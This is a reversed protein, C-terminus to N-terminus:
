LCLGKLYRSSFRRIAGCRDVRISGRTFIARKKPKVHVDVSGSRSASVIAQALSRWWSFVNIARDNEVSSEDGSTPSHRHCGAPIRQNRTQTEGYPFTKVM